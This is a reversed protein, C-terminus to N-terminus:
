KELKTGNLIFKYVWDFVSYSVEWNKLMSFLHEMSKLAWEFCEYDWEFVVYSLAWNEKELIRM